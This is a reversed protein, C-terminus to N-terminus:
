VAKLEKWTEWLTNWEHKLPYSQLKVEQNQIKHLLQGIAGLKNPFSDKIRELLRKAVPTKLKLLTKKRNFFENWLYSRQDHSLEKKGTEHLWQGAKKLKGVDANQIAEAMHLIRPSQLNEWSPQEEQYGFDELVHYGITPIRKEDVGSYEEYDYDEDDLELNPLDGERLGARGFIGQLLAKESFVEAKNWDEPFNSGEEAGIVFPYLKNIVKEIGEARSQKCFENVMEPTADLVALEDGLDRAQQALCDPIRKTIYEIELYSQSTTHIHPWLIKRGAVYGGEYEHNDLQTLKPRYPPFPNSLLRDNDSPALHSLGLENPFSLEMLDDLWMYYVSKFTAEPKRTGSFEGFEIEPCLVEELSQLPRPDIPDILTESENFKDYYKWDCAQKM